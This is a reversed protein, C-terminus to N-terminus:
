QNNLLRLYQEPTDMDDLIEGCPVVKVQHMFNRFVVKAGQKGSLKDLENFYFRDFLVPVGQWGSNAQSVIIQQKGAEFNALQRTLHDITILPQDILTILIGNCDPFQQEVFRVGTAISTGM